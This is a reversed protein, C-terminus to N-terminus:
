ERWGQAQEARKKAEALLQARRQAEAKRATEAKKYESLVQRYDLLDLRAQQQSATEGAIEGRCGAIWHRVFEEQRFPNDRVMEATLPSTAELFGELALKPTPHSSGLARVTEARLSSAALVRALEVVLEGARPWKRRWQEWTKSGPPALGALRFTDSVIAVGVAWPLDASPPASQLERKIAAIDFAM